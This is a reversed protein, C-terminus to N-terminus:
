DRGYRGYFSPAPSGAWMSKETDMTWGSLNMTDLSKLVLRIMRGACVKCKVTGMVCGVIRKEMMGEADHVRLLKMAKEAVLCRLATFDGGANRWSQCGILPRQGDGKKCRKTWDSFGDPFPQEVKLLLEFRAWWRQKNMRLQFLRVLFAPSHVELLRRVGASLYMPDHYTVLDDTDCMGAPDFGSRAALSLATLPAFPIRWSLLQPIGRIEYVEGLTYLADILAVFPEVPKSSALTELWATPTSRHLLTLLARVADSPTSALEFLPPDPPAICPIAAANNPSLPHLDALRSRFISDAFLSAFFSSHACMLSGTTYFCTDDEARLIMADHTAPTEFHPHFSRIASQQPSSPPTTTDSHHNPGLHLHNVATALHATVESAM